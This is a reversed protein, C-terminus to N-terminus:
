EARGMRRLGDPTVRHVGATSILLGLETGFREPAIGTGTPTTFVLDTQRWREGALSREADQERGHAMLRKVMDAGLPVTRRGRGSDLTKLRRRGAEVVLHRVVRLHGRDLDLDSWRLALVEGRRLGGELVLRYALGLRHGAAAALFRRREAATWMVPDWTVPEPAKVVRLPNEGLRGWEVADECAMSLVKRVVRVSTAGLPAEGTEPVPRALRALWGELVEPGLDALKLSGLVPNVHRRVAWAYQDLTSREVDSAKAPLWIRALFGAVTKVDGGGQAALADALAAEAEERSSFGAVQRQGRRGDPGSASDIRYAWTGGPTRPARIGGKMGAM